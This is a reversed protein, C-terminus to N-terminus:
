AAYNLLLNVIYNARILPLLQKIWEWTLTRCAIWKLHCRDKLLRQKQFTAKRQLLNRRIINM